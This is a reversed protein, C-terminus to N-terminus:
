PGRAWRHAGSCCQPRHVEEGIRDVKASVAQRVTMSAIAAPQRTMTGERPATARSWLRNRASKDMTDWGLRDRRVTRQRGSWRVPSATPRRRPSTWGDALGNRLPRRNAPAVERIAAASGVPEAILGFWRLKGIRPKALGAARGAIAVFDAPLPAEIRRRRAAPFRIAGAHLM